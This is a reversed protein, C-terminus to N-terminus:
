GPLPPFTIYGVFALLTNLYHPTDSFIPIQGSFSGLYSKSITQGVSSVVFFATTM